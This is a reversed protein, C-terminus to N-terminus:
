STCEGRPENGLWWFIQLQSCGSVAVVLGLQSTGAVAASTQTGPFVEDRGGVHKNGDAVPSAGGKCRLGCTM